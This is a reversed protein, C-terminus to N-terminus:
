SRISGTWCPASKRMCAPGPRLPKRENRGTRARCIGSSATSIANKVGSSRPPWPPPRGTNRAYKAWASGSRAMQERLWRVEGDYYEDTTDITNRVSAISFLTAIEDETKQVGFWAERIEAYSKAEAACKAANELATKLRDLDPRQYPMESFRVMNM